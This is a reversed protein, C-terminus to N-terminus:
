SREHMHHKSKECKTDKSPKSCDTADPKHVGDAARVWRKGDETFGLATAIKPGPPLDRSLIMSVLTVSVGVRRAFKRMSGDVEISARIEDRIQADTYRM